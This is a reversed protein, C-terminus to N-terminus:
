GLSMKIPSLFSAPSAEKNEIISRGLLTQGGLSSRAQELYGNRQLAFGMHTHVFPAHFYGTDFMRHSDPIEREDGISLPPVARLWDQPDLKNVTTETLNTGFSAVVRAGSAKAAENWAGKVFHHPSLRHFSPDEHDILRTQFYPSNWDKLTTDYVYSFIVLDAPTPDKLFDQGYELNVPRLVFDEAVPIGTKLLYGVTCRLIERDRPYLGDEVIRAGVCAIHRLPPLGSRAAQAAYANFAETLGFAHASPRRAPDHTM